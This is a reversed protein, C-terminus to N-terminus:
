EALDCDSQRPNLIVMSPKMRQVIHSRYPDRDRDFYLSEDKEMSSPIDRAHLMRGRKLYSGCASSRSGNLRPLRVVAHGNSLEIIAGRVAVTRECIYMEDARTVLQGPTACPCCGRSHLRSVGNM